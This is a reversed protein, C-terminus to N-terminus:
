RKAPAAEPVEYIREEKADSPGGLVAMPMIWRVRRLSYGTGYAQNRWHGRRWTGERPASASRAGFMDGVRLVRRYGMANLKSRARAVEKSTGADAKGIWKEPTGPQWREEVDGQYATIFCLANVILSVARRYADRNQELHTFLAAIEDADDKSLGGALTKTMSAHELDKYDDDLSADIAEGLPREWYEYMLRTDFFEEHRDWWPTDAPQPATLVFRLSQGPFHILWAGTVLVGSHLRIDHRAGFAVYMVDFPLHLDSPRIEGPDSRDLAETLADNLDYIISGRRLWEGFALAGQAERTRRGIKAAPAGPTRSLADSYARFFLQSGTASLDNATVARSFVEAWPRTRRFFQPYYERASM